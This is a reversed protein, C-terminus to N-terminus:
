SNYSCSSHSPFASLKYRSPFRNARGLFGRTIAPLHTTEGRPWYAGRPIHPQMATTVHPNIEGRPWSFNELFPDSGNLLHNVGSPVQRIGMQPPSHINPLQSVGSTWQAEEQIIDKPLQNGRNLLKKTGDLVKRMSGLFRESGGGLPQKKTEDPPLSQQSSGQDDSPLALATSGARYCNLAAENYGLSVKSGLASRYGAVVEQVGQVEDGSPPEIKDHLENGGAHSKCEKQLKNWTAPVEYETDSARKPQQENQEANWEYVPSSGYEYHTEYVPSYQYEYPMEYTPSSDYSCQWEYLSTGYKCQSKHGPSSEHAYQSERIPSFEYEYLSEYTPSCEYSCHSDYIPSCECTKQTEYAACSDYDAENKTTCASPSPCRCPSEYAPYSPCGYQSGYISSSLYAYPAENKEMDYGGCQNNWREYPEYGELTEDDEEDPSDCDPELECADEEKYEPASEYEVEKESAAEELNNNEQEGCAEASQLEIDDKVEVQEADKEPTRRNLLHKLNFVKPDLTFFCLSRKPGFTISVGSDESISISFLPGRLYWPIHDDKTASCADSGGFVERFVDWPSRFTFNLDEGEPVAASLGDRGYCDYRERKLKDSLVEYAETVEKFKQEAYKKSDPNKDPHWQLAKKRFAKKIDSDSADRPVELLKYYDPVAAM